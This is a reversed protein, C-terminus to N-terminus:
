LILKYGQGFNFDFGYQITKDVVGTKFVITETAITIPMLAGTAENTIWYIEESVMLQKLIENYDESIWDTNVSISQKSDVIYNLNSSDYNQYSLSTGEWSGLQPQYSRNTTSFSQRNIMDFNFYDFQGFRNKWKIRVNPYKQICKEEFRIPAGLATSSSYPQITFYTSDVSLPFNSQLPGIPIYQTQNQTDLNGSVILKANGLSGSYRVNDCVSAVGLGYFGTYVTMNGANTDFFSQTAPGSTMLPWHVSATAIPQGISEQFIGYGDLAKYRLSKVHSGTIYSSGSLYQWYFDCAFYKVNSTNEQALDTLTSNLIRGVDFIGVNSTNPYKTLVYQPVSGSANPTGAWYYLDAVYQFSSSYIVAASESVTFITPSQVLSCQAPVQTISISM